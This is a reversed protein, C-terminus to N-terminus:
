DLPQSSLINQIYTRKPESPFDMDIFSKNKLNKTTTTKRHVVDLILVWNFHM